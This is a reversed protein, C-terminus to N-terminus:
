ERFKIEIPNLFVMLSYRDLGRFYTQMRDHMNIAVDDDMHSIGEMHGFVHSEPSLSQLPYSYSMGLFLKLKSWRLFDINYSILGNRNIKRAESIQTVAKLYQKVKEKDLASCSFIEHAQCVQSEQNNKKNELPKPYEFCKGVRCILSNYNKLIELPDISVPPETAKPKNVNIIAM